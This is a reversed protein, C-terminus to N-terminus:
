CLAKIWLGVSIQSHYYLVATQLRSGQWNNDEGYCIGCSTLNVGRRIVTTWLGALSAGMEACVAVTIVSLHVSHLSIVLHCVGTRNTHVTFATHVDYSKASAFGRKETETNIITPNKHQIRHMINTFYYLYAQPQRSFCYSSAPQLKLFDSVPNILAALAWTPHMSMGPPFFSPLNRSISWCVLYICLGGVM